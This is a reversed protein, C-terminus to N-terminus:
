EEGRILYTGMEKSYSILGGRWTSSNFALGYADMQNSMLDANSVIIAELSRAKGQHCALVIHDLAALDQVKAATIQNNYMTVYLVSETGVDVCFGRPSLKGPTDALTTLKGVDHLLSGAIILDLNVKAAYPGMMQMAAKRAIEATQVSHALLGGFYSHHSTGGIKTAMKDVRSTSFIKLLLTKISADGVDDILAFLRQRCEEEQEAPLSPYFDSLKYTGEGAESVRIVNMGGRDQWLDVQGQCIVVKGILESPDANETMAEAWLKFTTSGSLDSVVLDLWRNGFKNATEKVDSLIAIVEMEEGIHHKLEAIAVRM